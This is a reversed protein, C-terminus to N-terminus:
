MSKLWGRRRCGIAISSKQESKSNM